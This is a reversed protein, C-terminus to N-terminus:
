AIVLKRISRWISHYWCERKEKFPRIEEPPCRFKGCYNACTVTGDRNKSTVIFVGHYHKVTVRDSIEVM